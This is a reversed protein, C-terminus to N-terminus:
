STRKTGNQRRVSIGIIGIAIVLSLHVWRGGFDMLYAWIWFVALFGVTIFSM